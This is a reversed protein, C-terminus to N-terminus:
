VIWKHPLNVLGLEVTEKPITFPESSKRDYIHIFNEDMIYLDMFFTGEKIQISPFCLTVKRNGQLTEIDKTGIGIIDIGDIRKLIAGIRYPVLGSSAEIEIDINLDDGYRVTPFPTVLINRILVQSLNKEGPAVVEEKQMAKEGDRKLQYTEYAQTVDHASGEMHLKGNKLWIVRDCLRNIFYMSHSCFLITKGADKFSLIKDTSKKQFYLDGVSLAEDVVLIDPQVAMAVSFALRVYM